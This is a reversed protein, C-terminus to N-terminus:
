FFGLQALRDFVQGALAEADDRGALLHLESREPVEYAQDIGTFNKIEGALARRYLGKPDRAICQELPTDVFIEVFSGPEVLERVMRREARFPSIFSCLVILGADTMLRAVEGVRRINEVRDAETFGLDRNLGHRVNDGDLMATHVGHAHLKAELLNAITSKGAGSLGTFWLIAPRQRKLAARAGATVATAQVPITSARRLAFAITGAAVTAGSYRDVLIFCGTNRNEAYPDFVIPTATSLNCFGVQDLALTRAAHHSLTDVDLQYKLATVAATTQQTGVKMLYSRGPFLTAEHMWILHATIQDAVQPPNVPDALVDGRAIDLARDLVLTVADGSQARELDGSATVIRAVQATRGSGAIVVTDGARVAGGVITGSYGRFDLHPRNIWQVPMRFPTPESAEVDVDELFALLAPGGYWPMNRSASTVNDGRRASVPIAAISNFTLAAAFKRFGDVIADFVPQRFEVLDMKNVALVVHRIGLLSVITAHRLTQTLLGKRADVLIVGLECNSAGTAMNRTYQEHGPTDAVIFARRATAFYRYAVDITIGQEREADLGDLLLAFDLEEGTSGHKCSADALADRQDDLILGADHLLRGILTSKGDDVSGCTLLRLRPRM